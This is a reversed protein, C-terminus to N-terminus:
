AVMYELIYEDQSLSLLRRIQRQTLRAPLEDTNFLPNEDLLQQLREEL